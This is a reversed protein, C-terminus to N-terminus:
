SGSAWRHIRLNRAQVFAMTRERYDLYESLERPVPSNNFDSFATFFRVASLDEAVLDQLLFFDVYGEFNGFLSFFANYRLLTDHIPDNLGLYHRRICELTLDFRDAIRRNFGRVGNITIKGDVKNSPFIMMGGITYSIALFAENDAEILLSTIHQLSKWRTFTPIISDSSLRVEGLNSMHHLYVDSKADSLTFSSGSPLKKSWLFKHYRRLTASFKDPDNGGSDIRFDFNTDVQM